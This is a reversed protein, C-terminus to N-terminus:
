LLLALLISGIKWTNYKKWVAYIGEQVTAKQLLGTIKEAEAPSLEPGAERLLVAQIKEREAEPTDTWLNAHFVNTIKEQATALSTQM